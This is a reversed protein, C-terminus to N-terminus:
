RGLPGGDRCRSRGATGALRLAPHRLRLPCVGYIIPVSGPSLVRPPAPTADQRAGAPVRAPTPPHAPRRRRALRQRGVLPKRTGGRCLAVHLKDARRRFGDLSRGACRSTAVPSPRSPQIAPPRTGTVANAWPIASPVGHSTTDAVCRGPRRSPPKRCQPVLAVGASAAPRLRVVNWVLPGREDLPEIDLAEGRPLHGRRHRCAPRGPAHYAGAEPPGRAPTQGQKGTRCAQGDAETGTGRRADGRPCLPMARGYPGPRDGIRCRVGDAPGDSGM